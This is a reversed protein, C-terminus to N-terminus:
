ERRRRDLWVLLMVLVAGLLMLGVCYVLYAPQGTTSQFVDPWMNQQVLPLQEGHRNITYATTYKWPWLKNLSGLLFGSLLALTPVRYHHLLWSLLHSFTLLGLVCGAAFLSLAPINLAQIAGIVPAYMGLLLLIFSGSIGPLIMACIAIMGSLFLSLPTPELMAPAMTTIVYALLAGITFMGLTQAQWRSIDRSVLWTSALVLGFFFSWLLQPAHELWYVVLHSVSFLSLLIGSLLTLLFSGNIYVWFARPGRKLLVALAAPSIQKLSDILEDYIGSVFAITGGSVGPVADAAGMLVGKFSLWLYDRWSKEKHM